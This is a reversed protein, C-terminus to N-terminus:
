LTLYDCGPPSLPPILLLLPCAGLTAAVPLGGRGAMVIATVGLLIAGTAAALLPAPSGAGLWRTFMAGLSVNDPNTLNAATTFTVTRWWDGLLRLNGDWGYRTVPLLLLVLLGGAM